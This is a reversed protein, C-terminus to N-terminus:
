GNVDIVIVDKTVQFKLREPPAETRALRNPDLPDSVIFGTTAAIKLQESLGSDVM